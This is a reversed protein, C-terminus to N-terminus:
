VITVDFIPGTRTYLASKANDVIGIREFLQSNSKSRGLILCLCTDSREALALAYCIGAPQAPMSVVDGPTARVVNKIRTNPTVTNGETLVCDPDIYMKNEEDNAKFRSVIHTADNDAFNPNNVAIVCNTVWGRLTIYGSTVVGLDNRGSVTVRADLVQALWSVPVHSQLSNFLGGYEIGSRVSAWSWTPAIYQDYSPHLAGPRSQWALGELLHERWLGALYTWKHSNLYRRAVASIAPLRDATKTMECKSYWQVLTKWDMSANPHNFVLQSPGSVDPDQDEFKTCTQCEFALAAKGFTLLRNSLLREQYAWARTSLKSSKDTAPMHRAWSLRRACVGAENASRAVNAPNFHLGREEFLSDNPSNVSAAAITLHANRYIDGMKAAQVEWDEQSDQLICLADIWVYKIHMMRALTFFQRFLRPCDWYSINQRWQPLLETTLKFQQEGGWCYSLALYRERTVMGDVLRVSTWQTDSRDGVYVVRDPVSEPGRRCARHKQLCDTLSKHIFQICRDDSAKSSRHPASTLNYFDPIKQGPRSGDVNKWGTNASSKDPLYVELVETPDDDDSIEPKYIYVLLPFPSHKELVIPSAGDANPVFFGLFSNLYLCFTCSGATSRVKDIDIHDRRFGDDDDDDHSPAIAGSNGAFSSSLLERLVERKTWQNAVELDRCTPCCNPNNPKRPKNRNSTSSPDFGRVNGSHTIATEETVTLNLTQGNGWPVSFSTTTPESGAPLSNRIASRSSRDEAKKSRSFLRRM